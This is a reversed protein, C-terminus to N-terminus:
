VSLLLGVKHACARLGEFSADDDGVWGSYMVDYPSFPTCAQLLTLQLTLITYIYYM